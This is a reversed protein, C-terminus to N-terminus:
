PAGPGNLIDALHERRTRAFRALEANAPGWDPQIELATNYDEYAGRIDGLAERAAGRNFYAKHPERVGLGLAETIAAVAEGHRGLQVLAAGRNLHAEAHRREIGIVADFDALAADADRRRLHTVGRNVLLQIQAERTLRRYNLARTCVEVTGDSADGALVAEGCRRAHADSGIVTVARPEQRPDQANAAAAAALLALGALPAALALPIRRPLGAHSM